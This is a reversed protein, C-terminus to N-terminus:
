LLAPEMVLSHEPLFPRMLGLGADPGLGVKTHLSTPNGVESKWAKQASKPGSGPGQRAAANSVPQSQATGRASIRLNKPSCFPNRLVAFVQLLNEASFSRIQLGLCCLLCLATVFRHCRQHSANKSSIQSNQLTKQGFDSFSYPLILQREKSSAAAVSPPARGRDAPRRRPAAAGRRDLGTTSRGRPYRKLLLPQLDYSPYTRSGGCCRRSTARSM